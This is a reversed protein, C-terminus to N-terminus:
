LETFKLDLMDGMDFETFCQTTPPEAFTFQMVEDVEKCIEEFYSIKIEPAFVQTDSPIPVPIKRKNDRSRSKKSKKTPYFNQLKGNEFVVERKVSGDPNLLRILHLSQHDRAHRGMQYFSTVERM